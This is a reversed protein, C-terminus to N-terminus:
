LSSSTEFCASGGTTLKCPRKLALAPALKALRLSFHSIESVLTIRATSFIAGKM